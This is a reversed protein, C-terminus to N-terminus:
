WLTNYRRGLCGNRTIRENLFFFVNYKRYCYKPRVQVLDSIGRAVLELGCRPRWATGGALLWGYGFKLKLDHGGKTRSVSEQLDRAEPGSFFFIDGVLRLLNYLTDMSLMITSTRVGGYGNAGVDM